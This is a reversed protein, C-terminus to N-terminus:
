WLGTCSAAALDRALLVAIQVLPLQLRLGHLATLSISCTMRRTLSLQTASSQSKPGAGLRQDPLARQAPMVLAEEQHMSGMSVCWVALATSVATVQHAFQASAQM